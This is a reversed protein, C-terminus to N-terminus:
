EACAPTVAKLWVTPLNRLMRADDDDDDDDNRVRYITHTAHATTDVPVFVIRPLQTVPM